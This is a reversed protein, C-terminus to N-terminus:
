SVRRPETIAAVPALREVLGSVDGDIKEHQERTLLMVPTWSGDPRQAARLARDTRDIWNDVDSLQPLRPTLLPRLVNLVARTGDLNALATALGTGSGYDARGTLEFQLTNEMIEHARLGLDNPDVQLDDFGDRLTHVDADLRDAVAALAPMDENHWLGNELRHFGTFGPDTTGGPLGDATGNIAGDSDGFADYAAGLREYALHATLWAREAGARDQAHVTNQLADTDAILSDLGTGVYTKYDRLPGLLDNRTVPVVAPGSRETGGTVTASPGTIPDTEELACRFAYSGNGLEVQMTRTTGSGIGEVEGFVTGTAPDILDVEATIADTNHLQFTQAGPRPDTWGEGCSSRSVTIVPEGGAAASTSRWVVIGAGAGVLVVALVLGPIWRSM